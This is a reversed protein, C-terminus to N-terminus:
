QSFREILRLNLHGNLFDIFRVSREDVVVTHDVFRPMSDPVKEILREENYTPIVVAVTKDRYM